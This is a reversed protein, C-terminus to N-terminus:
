PWATTTHIDPTTGTQPAGVGGFRTVSTCDTTITHAPVQGIGTYVPNGTPNVALLCSVDGLQIFGSEYNGPKGSSCSISLEGPTSDKSLTCTEGNGQNATITAIPSQSPTQSFLLTVLVAIFVIPRM